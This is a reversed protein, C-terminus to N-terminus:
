SHDITPPQWTGLPELGKRFPTALTWAQGALFYAQWSKDEYQGFAQRLRPTYGNSQVSNAGGSGNNFDMEGYGVIRSDPGAPAEIKLSLRTQQASLGFEGSNGQPTPGSFPITNYGTGTGRNEDRSRFYGTLDIYGGLTLKVAGLMFSGDGPKDPDAAPPASAQGAEPASTADAPMAGPTGAASAPARVATASVAAAAGSSGPRHAPQRAAAAARTDGAQRQKETAELQEIRKQLLRIQQLLEQTTPEQASVPTASAMTMFATGLSLVARHAWAARPM